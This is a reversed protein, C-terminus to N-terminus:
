FFSNFLFFIRTVNVKIDQLCELKPTSELKSNKPLTYITPKHPQNKSSIITETVADRVYANQEIESPLNTDTTLGLRNQPMVWDNTIPNGESLNYQSKTNTYSCIMKAQSNWTDAYERQIVARRLNRYDNIIHALPSPITKYMTSHYTVDRNPQIYEYVEVEDEM